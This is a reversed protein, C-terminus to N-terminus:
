VMIMKTQLDSTKMPKTKENVTEFETLRQEREQKLRRAAEM